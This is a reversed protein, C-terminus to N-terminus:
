SFSVSPRVDPSAYLTFRPYGKSGNEVFVNLAAQMHGSTAQELFARFSAADLTDTVTREEYIQSIKIVGYISVTHSGAVQNIAAQYHSETLADKKILANIIKQQYRKGPKSQGKKWMQISRIAAKYQNSKKDTTGSLATALSPNDFEVSALGLMEQNYSIHSALYDKASTSVTSRDVYSNRIQNAKLLKAM